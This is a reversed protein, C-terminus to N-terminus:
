DGSTLVTGSQWQLAISLHEETIKGMGVLCEGIRQGKRKQRLADELDAESILQLDILVEGLRPPATSAAAVSPYVHETKIWALARKRLKATGFQRIAQVTAAGNILNAWLIRIPAAAAFRAGYIRSSLQIRFGAQLVSIGISVLCVEKLWFPLQVVPLLPSSERHGILSAAWYLFVLNALPSILNGALGKRDRWFWYIQKASGRWGHREWGQLTIGAVWRSRQRIAARRTRPFYERTALPRKEAMRIPVFIQRYGAQHIRFGNEYDETLCAPDFIRGDNERHLSELATREFGTGVGNSPLFGGLRRRVPIDKLQYEAFEDCYVGHTWENWGTALPLVPIQVMEYDRSFWNILLLSERDIVDEADHTVIIEFDIGTRREYEVMARYAWNLCDGKSTPGDHPCFALHVRPDEHAVTRVAEVTLRDNPYVGVFIDYNGYRVAALNNRLMKGIVQHEHWLPVFVAIRRQPAHTLERDAPWPFRDRSFTFVLDIFLDDLGSLLVWLAIPILCAALWHDFHM